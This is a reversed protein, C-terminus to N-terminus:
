NLIMGTAFRTNRYKLYLFEKGERGRRGGRREKDVELARGV